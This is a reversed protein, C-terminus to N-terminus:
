IRIAGAIKTTRASKMLSLTIFQAMENISTCELIKNEDLQHSKYQENIAAVIEIAKISDGGLEFFGRNVCIESIDLVRSWISHVVNEVEGTPKIAEERSVKQYLSPLQGAQYLQKTQRRRIKGSSTMPIKFPRLLVVDDVSINHQSYISRAIEQVLLRPELTKMSGRKIETVVVLKEDVEFAAAYGSHIDDHCYQITSEIDQPYYNKGKLIIMDKSRGTVYLHKGSIFGLDGTQLYNRGDDSKLTNGFAQKSVEDLLWYGPSLSPGTFWVEGIEGYPMVERTQPNVIKLHHDEDTLGNGVFDIKDEVNDNISDDLSDNLIIVKNDALAKKDISITVLKDNGHGGTIFATSEAMGYSPYFSDLKFGTSSFHKVFRTITEYKVPEAANYAIRWKSLDVDAMDKKAIKDTCLDYAFNPAGGITGGFRTMAKLWIVPNRVFTAPAMLVSKCGLYAPLLISTVLGLDHFLPLWNVFIDKGNAGSLRELYKTNALINGQTIVVGKPAGTSGSTYQLFAPKESSVGPLPEIRNSQGKILENTNVFNMKSDCNEGWFATIIPLEKESTLAFKAKSALAVIFVKDSKSNKKPPYLPIAVVGAMVCAFFAKIYEIGPPYLLLICDGPTINNLLNKAIQCVDTYLQHYTITETPLSLDTVFEYAVEDPKEISNHYLCEVINNVYQM